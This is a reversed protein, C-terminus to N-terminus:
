LSVSGIWSFHTEARCRDTDKRPLTSLGFPDFGKGYIGGFLRKLLGGGFPQTSAEGSRDVICNPNRAIM